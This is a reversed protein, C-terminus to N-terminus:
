NGDFFFSFAHSPFSEDFRGWYEKCALFFAAMVVSLSTPLTAYCHLLYNEGRFVIVNGVPVGTLEVDCVYVFFFVVMVMLALMLLCFPGLM